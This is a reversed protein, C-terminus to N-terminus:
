YATSCLVLYLLASRSKTRETSNLALEDAQALLPIRITDGLKLTSRQVLTTQSTQGTATADGSASTSGKTTHGGHSAM